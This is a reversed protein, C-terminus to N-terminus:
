RRDGALWGFALATAAVYVLHHGVDIAIEKGGWKAAPPGAGTAPLVVQEAGWV